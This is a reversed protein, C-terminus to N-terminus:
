KGYKMYYACKKAREIEKEEKNSGFLSVKLKTKVEFEVENGIPVRTIRFGTHMQEFPLYTEILIDTETDIKLATNIDIYQKARSWVLTDADKPVRFKTPMLTILYDDYDIIDKISAFITDNDHICSYVRKDDTYKYGIILITDGIKKNLIGIKDGVAGNEFKYIVASDKIIIGKEPTIHSIYNFWSSCGLLSLLGLTILYKWM